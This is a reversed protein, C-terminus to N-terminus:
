RHRTGRRVTGEEGEGTDPVEVYLGRRGRVQTHHGQMTALLTNLAAVDASQPNFSAIDSQIWQSALALKAKATHTQEMLSPYVTSRFVGSERDSFSSLEQVGELQKRLQTGLVGVM